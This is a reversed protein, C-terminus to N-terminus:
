VDYSANGLVQSAPTSTRGEMTAANETTTPSRAQQTLSSGQHSSDEITFCSEAMEEPLSRRPISVSNRFLKEM